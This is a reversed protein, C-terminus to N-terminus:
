PCFCTNKAVLRHLVCCRERNKVGIINKKFGKSLKLHSLIKHKDQNIEFEPGAVFRLKISFLIRLNVHIFKGFM